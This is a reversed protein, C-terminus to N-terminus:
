KAEKEKLTKVAYDILFLLHKNISRYNAVAEARIEDLTKPDINITIPVNKM